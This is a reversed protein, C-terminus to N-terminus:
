MLRFYIVGSLKGLDSLMIIIKYQAHCGGDLTGDRAFQRDVANKGLTVDFDLWVGYKSNCYAHNVAFLM